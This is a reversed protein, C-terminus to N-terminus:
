PYLLAPEIVQGYSREMHTPMEPSDFEFSDIRSVGLSVNYANRKPM